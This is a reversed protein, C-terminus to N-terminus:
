QAKDKKSAKRWRAERSETDSYSGHSNYDHYGVGAEREFEEDGNGKVDLQVSQQGRVVKRPDLKGGKPDKPSFRKQVARIMARFWVFNLTNLILNGTTYFAKIHFPIPPNHPKSPFYVFMMWSYSNYVGFTLRALIYTSLLFFANILQIKSGTKGMKDLFWHINLFASPLPFLQHARSMMPSVHGRSSM